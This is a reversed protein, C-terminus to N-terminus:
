FNFANRSNKTMIMQQYVYFLCQQHKGAYSTREFHVTVSWFNDQM